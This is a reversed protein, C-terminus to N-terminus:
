PHAVTVTYDVPGTQNGIDFVSFCFTGASPASVPLQPTSGAPTSISVSSQLTCTGSTAGPTGLGLGMFITPPPGAATLTVDVEGAQSVSFNHSDSGAPQVTGTFTDTVLMVPTTPTSSSDGSNDCAVSLAICALVAILSQRM